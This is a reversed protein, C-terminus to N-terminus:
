SSQINSHSMWDEHSQKPKPYVPAHGSSGCLALAKSPDKTQFLDSAQLFTKEM